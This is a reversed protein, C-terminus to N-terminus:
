SPAEIAGQQARNVVRAQGRKQSLGYRGFFCFVISELKEIIAGAHSSSVNM